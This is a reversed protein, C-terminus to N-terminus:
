RQAKDLESATIVYTYPDLERRLPESLEDIIACCGVADAGAQLLLARAALLQSGTEAWDDVLLARDGPGCAHAQIRLLHTHGKYDAGTEAELVKGPLRAKRGRRIPVFGVGLTAAVAAGLAFGAAEIGVVITPAFPARAALLRVVGGLAKGDRFLGWTDATPKGHPFGIARLLDARVREPDVTEAPPRM